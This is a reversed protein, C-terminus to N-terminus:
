QANEFLFVIDSKVHHKQIPGADVKLGLWSIEDFVPVAAIVSWVSWLDGDTQSLVLV